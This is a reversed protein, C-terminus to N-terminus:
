QASNLVAATIELVPGGLLYPSDDYISRTASPSDAPSCPQVSWVASVAPALM